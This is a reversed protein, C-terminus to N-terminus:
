IHYHFFIQGTYKMSHKAIAKLIEPFSTRFFKISISSNNALGRSQSLETSIYWDWFFLLKLEGEETELSRRGDLPHIVTM